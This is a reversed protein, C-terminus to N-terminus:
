KLIDYKFCTTRLANEDKKFIYRELQALTDNLLNDTKLIDKLRSM